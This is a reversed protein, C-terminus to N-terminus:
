SDPLENYISSNVANYKDVCQVLSKSTESLNESEEEDSAEESDGNTEIDSDGDNNGDRLSAALQGSEQLRLFTGLFLLLRQLAM